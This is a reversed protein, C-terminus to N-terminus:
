RYYTGADAPREYGARLRQIERESEESGIPAFAPSPKSNKDGACALLALLVLAVAFRM